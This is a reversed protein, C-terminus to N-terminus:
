SELHICLMPAHGGFEDLYHKVLNEEDPPEYGREKAAKVMRKAIQRAREETMDAWYRQGPNLKHDPAYRDLHWGVHKLNPKGCSPCMAGFPVVGDRSNWILERHGCGGREACAYWYLKFADHNLHGEPSRPQNNM